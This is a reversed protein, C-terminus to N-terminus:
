DAELADDVARSLESAGIGGVFTQAVRGDKGIVITTPLAQVSFSRALSQDAMAIPYDMGLRRATRTVAPLPMRDVSLGVLSVGRASLEHGARALQPAEARCAPCWTAWFNLVVVEGHHAALEFSEGSDLAVILGPAPQGTPPGGGQGAIQGAILYLLTGALLWPGVLRAIRQLQSLAGKGAGSAAPVQPSPIDTSQPDLVNEVRLM